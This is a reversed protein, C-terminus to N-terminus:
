APPLHSKILAVVFPARGPSSGPVGQDTIRPGLWQALGGEQTDNYNVFKFSNLWTM